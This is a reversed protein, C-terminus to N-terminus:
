RCLSGICHLRDPLTLQVAGLTIARAEKGAMKATMPEASIRLLAGSCSCDVVRDRIKRPMAIIPNCINCRFSTLLFPLM